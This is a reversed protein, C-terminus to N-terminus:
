FLYQPLIYISFYVYPDTHNRVEDQIPGVLIGGLSLRSLLRDRLNTSCGAGVYMRDYTPFDQTSVSSSRSRGGGSSTASLSSTSSSSSSSRPRIPVDGGTLNFGVHSSSSHNTPQDTDTVLSPVPFHSAPLEYDPDHAFDELDFVNGCCM